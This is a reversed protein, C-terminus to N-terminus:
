SVVAVLKDLNEIASVGIQSYGSGERNLWIGKMGVAQAALVDNQLSDGVYTCERAKVGARRCASLFIGPKPKSVGIEESVVVIDFRNAIGTQRLKKAQQESNGNSIIGLRRNSLTNLCPWVDDFLTWNDEYHQLYIAFREDAEDDTLCLKVKQFLERIRRRRHEAFTIEGRMFTAFHREMVAQWFQCFEESTYPLLSSFQQLFLLAATDQAQQHNILTQDIDFFIM